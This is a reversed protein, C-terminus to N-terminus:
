SEAFRVLVRNQKKEESDIGAMYNLDIFTAQEFQNKRYIWSLVRTLQSYKKKMEGSGLWIPFANDAMFLVLGGEPTVHIESINQKPLTVSGNGALFIFQLAERLREQGNNEGEWKELGTIVPFDHDDEPTAEAFVEGNGDVYFLGAKKSVLAVAVREKIVVSVKNPWNRAVEAKGIWDQEELQKRIRGTRIAWLNTQVDLGTCALIQTATMRECGSVKVEEIQFFVTRSLGQYAAFLFVVVVCVVGLGVGATKLLHEGSWSKEGARQVQLGRKTRKM